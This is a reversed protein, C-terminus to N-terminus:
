QYLGAPGTEAQALLNHRRISEMLIQMVNKTVTAKVEPCSRKFDIAPEDISWFWSLIEHCADEDGCGTTRANIIQGKKIFICGYRSSDRACLSGTEENVSLYMFFNHLNEGTIKQQPFDRWWNLARDVVAIFEDWDFPKDLFARCGMELCKKKAEETGYGTFAMFPMLPYNKRMYEMLEFGNMNPMCLNTCVLDIQQDLLIEVAKLGDGATLVRIKGAYNKRLSDALWGLLSDEDEVILVTQRYSTKYEAISESVNGMERTKEEVPKSNM